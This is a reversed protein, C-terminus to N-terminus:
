DNKVVQKKNYKIENGDTAICITGDKTDFRLLNFDEIAKVVSKHPHGYENGEGYSLTIIKPKIRSLLAKDTGTRSGHHAAKLVTACPIEFSNREEREMDGTMLFSVNGYSVLLVISNNNADSNTGSLIRVPALVKVTVDGFNKNQGASVKKFPIKKDLVAKYFKKQYNSGHIYGSDWVEAIDYNKVVECIAGIHDSHPHTAVLLDIKKVKHEKLFAAIASKSKSSGADVLMNKGNPFIFYSCDGQGVNLAYFRLCTNDGVENTKAIGQRQSQIILCLSIIIFFIM